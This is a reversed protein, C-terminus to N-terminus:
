DGRLYTHLEKETKDATDRLFQLEGLVRHLGGLGSTESEIQLLDEDQLTAHGHSMHNLDRAM